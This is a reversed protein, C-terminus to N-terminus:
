QLLVTLIALNVRSKSVSHEADKMTLGDKMHRKNIGITLTNSSPLRARYVVFNRSLLMPEHTDILAIHKNPNILPPNISQSHLPTFVM